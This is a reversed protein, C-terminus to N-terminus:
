VEKSRVGYLWPHKMINWDAVSKVMIRSVTVATLFNLVVGLGLTYAFSKLPGSGFYALVVASILTTINADLIATFARKFGVDIAARLTKGNRLEEKIREFIIVNADVGMGITLIVGAIGPLTLTMGTWSIFLLQLVTHGLLAINALIGPLRYYLLMFLWVLILSVGGALVTIDLASKGLTPSITSVQKAELKFPLHGARITKALETAEEITRQGNITAEGSPIKENVTPASILIDDMFIAIRKGVLRGTAEAFKKGGDSSLKLSVLYEGTTNSTVVNADVVDKGEIVIKNTPLYAKTVPDTKAEDVEQFTLLSTKGIEDIAKQANFDKEDKKWPIQVLVYGQQPNTTIIRDYIAKSDLRKEIVQKADDLDEKSPLKGDKTIAYFRADIGGRIDIGPRYEQASPIDVGLQKIELGFAALYTLFGIILIISLFKVANKGKM